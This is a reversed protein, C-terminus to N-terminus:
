QLTDALWRHLPLLRKWVATCYSVIKASKLEDPHKVEVGTYLADHLLLKELAPHKVEFGKPQRKFREGEVEFGAKELGRVVKLLATGSPSAVIAQRYKTLQEKDLQHAGVGMLLRSSTLRWFFGSVAGKRAGEWFWLDM